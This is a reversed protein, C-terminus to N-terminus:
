VDGKENKDTPQTGSAEVQCDANEPYANCLANQLNMASCVGQKFQHTYTTKQTVCIFRFHSFVMIESPLFYNTATPNNLIHPPPGTKRPCAM